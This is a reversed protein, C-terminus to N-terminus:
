KKPKNLSAANIAEKSEKLGQRLEKQEEKTLKGDKSMEKKQEEVAEVKQTLEAAQQETVKGKSLKKQIKAKQKAVKKEIQPAAISEKAEHKVNHEAMASSVTLFIALAVLSITRNM